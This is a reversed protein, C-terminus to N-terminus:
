TCYVHVHWNHLTSPFNQNMKCHCIIHNTFSPIQLNIRQIEYVHICTKYCQTGHNIQKFILATNTTQDVSYMYFKTGLTKLYFSYISQLLRYVITSCLKKYHLKIHSTKESIHENRSFFFLPHILTKSKNYSIIQWHICLTLTLRKISIKLVRSQIVLTVM